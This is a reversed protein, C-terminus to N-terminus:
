KMVVWDDITGDDNVTCAVKRGHNGTLIIEWWGPKLPTFSKVDSNGGFRNGCAKKAKKSPKSSTSASEESGGAQAAAENCKPYRDEDASTVRNNKSQTNVCQGTRANYWWTVLYDDPTSFTDVSTFGRSTMIDFAKIADRGVLDKFEAKQSAMAAGATLMLGGIATAILLTRAKKYM